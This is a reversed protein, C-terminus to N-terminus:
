LTNHFNIVNINNGFYYIAIVGSILNLLIFDFVSDFCLILSSYFLDQVRSIRHLIRGMFIFVVTCNEIDRLLFLHYKKRIIKIFIYTYKYQINLTVM